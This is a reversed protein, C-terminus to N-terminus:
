MSIMGQKGYDVLYEDGTQCYSAIFLPVIGKFENIRFNTGLFLQGDALTYYNTAKFSLTGKAPSIAPQNTTFISWNSFTEVTLIVPQQETGDIWGLVSYNLIGAFGPRIVSADGMTLRREMKDLDVEYEIRLIQRGTDNCHWRPADNLDKTMANKKGDNGITNISENFRDYISIDYNGPISRPM